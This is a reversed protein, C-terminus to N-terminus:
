YIKWLNSVVLGINIDLKTKKIEGTDKVVEHKKLNMVVILVCKKLKKTTTQSLEKGM